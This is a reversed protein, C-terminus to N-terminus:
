IPTPLSCRPEPHTCAVEQGLKITSQSACLLYRLHGQASGCVVADVVIVAFETMGRAAASSHGDATLSSLVPGLAIRIGTGPESCNLLCVRMDM